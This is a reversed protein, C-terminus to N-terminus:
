VSTFFLILGAASMALLLLLPILRSGQKENHLATGCSHCFCDSDKCLTHCNPCYM